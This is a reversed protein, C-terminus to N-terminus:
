AAIRFVSPTNRWGSISTATETCPASVKKGHVGVPNFRAGCARVRYRTRGVPRSCSKKGLFTPYILYTWDLVLNLDDFHELAGEGLSIVAPPSSSVARGLARNEAARWEKLGKKVIIEHSSAGFQHQILDDLHIAPLGSVSSLHHVVKRTLANVLGALALPKHLQHTPHYDYYGSMRRSRNEQVLTRM